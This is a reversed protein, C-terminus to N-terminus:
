AGAGVQADGGALHHARGVLRAGEHGLVMPWRDRGLVGDALHVDSRCVDAAAVRVQVEGVRPPDLRITEIEVPRGPERLVAARVALTEASM